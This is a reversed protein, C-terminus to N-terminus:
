NGKKHKARLAKFDQATLKGYPKAVDLATQNGKLEEDVAVSHLGGTKIRGQSKVAAVAGGATSTNHGTVSSRGGSGVNVGSHNGGKKYYDNQREQSIRRAKQAPTEDKAPEAMAAAKKKAGFSQALAAMPSEKAKPAARGARKGVAASTPAPEAKPAEKGAKKARADLRARAAASLKSPDIARGFRAENIQESEGLLKSYGKHYASKEPENMHSFFEHGRKEAASSSGILHQADQSAHAHFAAAAKDGHSARVQDVAARYKKNNRSPNSVDGIEATALHKVAHLLHKGLNEDVQEVEEEMQNSTEKPPSKYPPLQGGKSNPPSKYSSGEKLRKVPHSMMAPNSPVFPKEWRESDHSNDHHDSAATTAHQIAEADDKAAVHVKLTRPSGRWGATGKPSQLLHVTHTPEQDGHAKIDLSSDWVSKTEEKVFHNPVKLNMVRQVMDSEIPKSDAFDRIKTPQEQMIKNAIDAISKNTKDSLTNSM